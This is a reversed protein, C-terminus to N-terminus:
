PIGCMNENAQIWWRACSADETVARWKEGISNKSDVLEIIGYPVYSELPIGTGRVYDIFWQAFNKQDNAEADFAKLMEFCYQEPKTPIVGVRYASSEGVQQGCAIGLHLRFRENAENLSMGNAFNQTQEDLAAQLFIKASQAGEVTIGQWSGVGKVFSYAMRMSSRSIAGAGPIRDDAYLGGSPIPIPNPCAAPRTAILLECNKEQGGSGGGADGGDHGPNSPPPILGPPPYYIPPPELPPGQIPPPVHVPPLDSTGTTDFPSIGGNSGFVPYAFRDLVQTGGSLLSMITLSKIVSASLFDM